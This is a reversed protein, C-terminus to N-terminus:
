HVGQADDCLKHLPRPNLISPNDLQGLILNVIHFAVLPLQVLCDDLAVWLGLVDIHWISIQKLAVIVDELVKLLANFWKCSMTVFKAYGLIVLREDGQRSSEQCSRWIPNFGMEVGDFSKAFLFTSHSSQKLHFLRSSPPCANFIADMEMGLGVM